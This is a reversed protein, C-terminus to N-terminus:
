GICIMKIKFLMGVEMDEIEHLRLKNFQELTYLQSDGKRHQVISACKKNAAEIKDEEEKVYEEADETPDISDFVEWKVFKNNDICMVKTSTFKVIVM